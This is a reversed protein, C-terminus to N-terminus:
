DLTNDRKFKACIAHKLEAIGDVQTYKTEGAKIARIAAQKIHDPTDFDPEGASLAIVDIGQSRMERAKQSIALTASPRVRALTQASLIHTTM